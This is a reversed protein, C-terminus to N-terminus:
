IEDRLGDQVFGEACDGEEYSGTPPRFFVTMFKPELQKQRAEYERLQKHAAIRDRANATPDKGLAIRQMERMYDDDGPAPLQHDAAWQRDITPALQALLEDHRRSVRLSYDLFPSPLGNKDSVGPDDIVREIAELQAKCRALASVVMRQTPSFEFRRVLEDEIEAARESILSNSYLGHTVANKNGSHSSRLNSLTGNKNM